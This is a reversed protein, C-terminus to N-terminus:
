RFASGAELSEVLDLAKQIDHGRDPANGVLEEITALEDTLFAMSRRALDDISANVADAWQATLRSLNKEVEWPIRRLFHRRVLPRFIGM